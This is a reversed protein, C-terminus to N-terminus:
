KAIFIFESLTVLGIKCYALSKELVGEFKIKKKRPLFNYWIKPQMPNPKM